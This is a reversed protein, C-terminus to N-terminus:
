LIFNLAPSWVSPCPDTSFKLEENIYSTKYVIFNYMKLKFPASRFQNNYTPWSIQDKATLLSERTSYKYKGLVLLMSYYMLSIFYRLILNTCEVQNYM